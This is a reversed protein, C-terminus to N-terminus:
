GPRAPVLFSLGRHDQGDHGRPAFGDGKCLRQLSKVFGEGVLSIQVRTWKAVFTSDHRYRIRYLPEPPPSPPNGFIFKEGPERSLKKEIIKPWTNSSTTRDKKKDMPETAVRHSEYFNEALSRGSSLRQADASAKHMYGLTAHTALRWESCCPPYLHCVRNGAHKLSSYHVDSIPYKRLYKTNPPIQSHKRTGGNM